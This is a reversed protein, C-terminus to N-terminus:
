TPDVRHRIRPQVEIGMFVGGARVVDVANSERQISSKAEQEFLKWLEPMARFTVAAAFAAIFPDTVDPVLGPKLLRGFQIAASLLFALVASFGAGKSWFGRRLWIMTGIPAFMAFTEVAHRAAEAKTVIYLSWLPLLERPELTALARDLSFWHETLLGNALALLTVYVPFAVPVYQAYRYHRKWLDKGKLSWMLWIGLAVGVTRSVLSFAFPTTSLVFLSLITLPIIIAIGRAILGQFSMYRGTVALFMGAPVTAALDALVLLARYASDRGAAPFVSIPLTALRSVLDDPSLTLDFPMLFYATLLVSYAGLVIVLGDGAQYKALLLRYLHRHAVRFAGIGLLVGISQAAIYNLTVTRPPFFLQAYKVALVFVLCIALTLAANRVWRVQRAFAANVFYALPIAMMMNAIWDSRQDSANDIFRVARFKQWAEAASIPVYHLGDPGLMLSSYVIALGYLVALVAFHGHSLRFAAPPQPIYTRRNATM